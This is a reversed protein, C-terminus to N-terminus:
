IYLYIYLSLAKFLQDKGLQAEAKDIDAQGAKRNEKDKVQYVQARITADRFKLMDAKKVAVRNQYKSNPGLSDKIAKPADYKEQWLAAAERPDLSGNKAKGMWYVFHREDMMQMVGDMILSQEQRVEELYQMVVFTSRKKKAVAPPCRAKYARVAKRLSDPDTLVNDWWSVQKQAIAANKLNQCVKKDEACHASGVPFTDMPLWKGCPNCFKKGNITKRRAKGSCDVIKGRKVNTGKRSSGHSSAADKGGEGPGEGESGPGSEDDSGKGDAGGGACDLDEVELDSM